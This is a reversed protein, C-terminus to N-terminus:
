ILEQQKAGRLRADNYLRRARITAPKLAKRAARISDRVLVDEALTEANALREEAEVLWRDLARPAMTDPSPRETM